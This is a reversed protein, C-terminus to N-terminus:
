VVYEADDIVADGFSNAPDADDTGPKCFRTRFAGLSFLGEEVLNSAGAAPEDTRVAHPQQVRVVTDPQIGRERGDM